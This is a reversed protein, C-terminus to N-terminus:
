EYISDSDNDIADIENQYPELESLAYGRRVRSNETSAYLSAIAQNQRFLKLLIIKQGDTFKDAAGWAGNLKSSADKLITHPQTENNIHVVDSFHNMSGQFGHLIASEGPALPPPQPANNKAKPASTRRPGRRKLSGQVDLELASQKRKGTSVSRSSVSAAFSLSPAM